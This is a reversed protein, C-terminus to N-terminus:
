DPLGDVVETCELEDVWEARSAFCIRADPKIDVPTDLAGAPVMIFGSDVEELPLSSGCDSCFCKTHRTDPLQFIRVKDEGGLWEISASASFINAAHASGSGKRCRSCYCIFFHEFAGHIRFRVAGCLCSGSRENAM